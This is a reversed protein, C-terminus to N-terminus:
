PKPQTDDGPTDNRSATRSAATLRRYSTYFVGGGGVVVGLLLFLPASHLRRDLWNGAYVFLLIAAFFQFGLGALAGPSIEGPERSPGKSQNPFEAM